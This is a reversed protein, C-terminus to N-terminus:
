GLGLPVCDKEAQKSAAALAPSGSPANFLINLDSICTKYAALQSSQSTKTNNADTLQTTTRDLDAQAAALDRRVKVLDSKKSSLSSSSSAAWGGLGLAAVALVAVVIWPVLGGGSRSSSRRPPDPQYSSQYSPQYSPQPPQYSPQPQYPAQYSPTAAPYQATSSWDNSPPPAYSPQQPAYSPQ